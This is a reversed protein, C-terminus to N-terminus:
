DPEETGIPFSPNNLELNNCLSGLSDEVKGELDM